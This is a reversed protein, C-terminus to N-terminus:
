SAGHWDIKNDGIVKLQLRRRLNTPVFDDFHQAHFDGVEHLILGPIFQLRILFNKPHVSLQRCETLIEM